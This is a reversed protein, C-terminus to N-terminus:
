TSKKNKNHTIESLMYKGLLCYFEAKNHKHPRVSIVMGYDQLLSYVSHYNKEEAIKKLLKSDM